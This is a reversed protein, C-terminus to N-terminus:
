ESSEPGREASPGSPVVPGGVARTVQGDGNRELALIARVENAPVDVHVPPDFRPGDVWRSELDSVLLVEAESAVYLWAGDPEGEDAERLSVIGDGEVGVVAWRGTTDPAVDIRFPDPVDPDPATVFFTRRFDARDGAALTADNWRLVEAAFRRAVEDAHDRWAEEVAAEPWLSVAAGVTTGPEAVTVTLPIDDVPRSMARDVPGAAVLGSVLAIGGVAVVVNLSDPSDRLMRTDGFAATAGGAAGAAFWIVVAALAWVSPDAAPSMAAGTFFAAALSGVARHRVGARAAGAFGAGFVLVVGTVFGVLGGVEWSGGVLVALAVFLAPIAGASVVSGLWVDRRLSRADTGAGTRVM